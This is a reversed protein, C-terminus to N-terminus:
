DAREKILKESYIYKGNQKVHIIYIGTELSNVNITINKNKELIKETPIEIVKNGLIDVIEILMESYEGKYNLILQNNVPNPFVSVKSQKENTKFGTTNLGDVNIDDIFLNNGGGSTFAFKFRVVDQALFPQINAKELRWENSSIAPTYSAPQNITSTKLNGNSNKLYISTWTDGCNNSIFVQLQDNDNTTRRTFNLRFTLTPNEVARLDYAPSIIEDLTPAVKDYNAVGISNFGTYATSTVYGWTSQDNDNDIIVWDSYFDSQSEFSDEFPVYYLPNPTNGIIYIKNTFVTSKSTSAYNNTLTFTYAGPFSYKVKVISDTLSSAPEGGFDWLRSTKSGGYSNDTLKVSDGVCAIIIGKQLVEPVAACAVPYTYPDNTGTANLNNITWLNNRGSVPSNIAATMRTVQGATFMNLCPGNTYDMYNTFM